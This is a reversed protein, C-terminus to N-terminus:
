GNKKEMWCAHTKREDDNLWVACYMCPRRTLPKSM